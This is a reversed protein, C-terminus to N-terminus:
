VEGSGLRALRLKRKFWERQYQWFEPKPEEAEYEERMALYEDLELRMSRPDLLFNLHAVRLGLENADDIISTEPTM